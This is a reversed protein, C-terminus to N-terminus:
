SSGWVTSFITTSGNSDLQFGSIGNRTPATPSGMWEYTGGRSSGVVHRVTNTGNGYPASTLARFFYQQIINQGEIGTLTIRDEFIADFSFLSAAAISNGTSLADNLQSTINHIVPNPTTINFEGFTKPFKDCPSKLAILGDHRGDWYDVWRAVKGDKFNVAAITRTEYGFIDPADESFDVASNM